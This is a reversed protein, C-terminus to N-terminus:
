SRLDQKRVVSVHAEIARLTMMRALVIFAVGTVQM